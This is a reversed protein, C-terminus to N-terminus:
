SASSASAALAERGPAFRAGPAPEIPHRGYDIEVLKERPLGWAAYRELLFRSPAVFRDVLDLQAKIFRERVLFQRRGSM